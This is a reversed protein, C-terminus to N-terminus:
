RAKKERADRRRLSIERLLERSTRQAQAAQESLSALRQRLEVLRTQTETQSAPVAGGIGSRSM